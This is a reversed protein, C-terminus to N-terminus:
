QFSRVLLMSGTLVVLALAIESVVLVRRSRQRSGGSARLGSGRRLQAYLERSSAHIAPALSLLVGSVVSLCAAFVWTGPEVSPEPVGAPGAPATAVFANTLVTALLLAFPIALAGVLMGEGVLTEVIRRGSAGLTRRLAIEDDRAAGRALGIGALNTCALLWLSAVGAGLLVLGGRIDRVWQDHLRNVVVGMRGESGFFEREIRRMVVELDARAEEIEVNRKLRGITFLWFAHRATRADEQLALPTWFDQFEPIRFSAPMVGVVIFPTGDLLIREGVVSGRGGFRRQWLAHSLVIRHDPFVFDTEASLYDGLEPAVGLMPFFNPSVNAGVLREPEGGGTLHYTQLNYAALAALTDNSDRFDVYSPYSTVDELYGQADNKLWVMVIRDPDEYPLRRLLMADLISFIAATAGIAGGLTLVSFITYTKSRLLSRVIFRVELGYLM